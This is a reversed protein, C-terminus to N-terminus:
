SALRAPEDGGLSFPRAAPRPVNPRAPEATAALALELLAFARREAEVRSWADGAELRQLLLGDLLAGYALSTAEADMWGPLEGRAIGERLLLQGVTSLQERRRGLMERVAPAAAEAWAQVLYTASGPLGDETPDMTDLFFGIAIALKEATSRGSALRDALEGLGRGSSLDCTALFLEDKGKFYTYIAGVSLGSARVVDQMTARHYGHENFVMLAAAIIRDRVQQEHAASVRPMNTSHAGLVPERADFRISTRSDLQSTLNRTKVFRIVM